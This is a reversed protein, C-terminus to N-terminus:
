VKDEKHADRLSRAATSSCVEMVPWVVDMTGGPETVFFEMM